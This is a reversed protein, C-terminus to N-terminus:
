AVRSGKTKELTSSHHRSTVKRQMASLDSRIKTEDGPSTASSRSIARRTMPLSSACNPSASCSSGRKQSCSGSSPSRTTELLLDRARGFGVDRDDDEPRANAGGQGSVDPPRVAAGIGGPRLELELVRDVAEPAVALRVKEDIALGRASMAPRRHARRAVRRGSARARDREDVLPEDVALATRERRREMGELRRRVELLQEFRVQRPDDLAVQSRQFQGPRGRLRPVLSRREPSEFGETRLVRRDKEPTRGGDGAHEHLQAPLGLAARREHQDHAHTAAALRRESAGAYQRQHQMGAHEPAGGLPAVRGKSGAVAM